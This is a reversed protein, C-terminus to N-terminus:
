IIEYKAFSEDDDHYSETEGYELILLKKCVRKLEKEMKKWEEAGLNGIIMHKVSNLICWDFEKDKYPLKRIDQIEFKKNPYLIQAEKIFDPSFDVGLYNDFYESLRGYGCGADLVRANPKIHERIVKLHADLIKKWWRDNALYVSYHLHKMRKAERLREAWFEISDIEKNM